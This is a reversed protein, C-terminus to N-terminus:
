MLKSWAVPCAGSVPLLDGEQGAPFLFRSSAYVSEPRNHGLPDIGVSDLALLIVHRDM